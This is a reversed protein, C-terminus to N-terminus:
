TRHGRAGLFVVIGLRVLDRATVSENNDEIGANERTVIVITTKNRMNAQLFKM